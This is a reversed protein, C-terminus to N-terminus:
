VSCITPLTLHTYSVPKAVAVINRKTHSRFTHSFRSPSKPQFGFTLASIHLKPSFRASSQPQFGFTTTNMKNTLQAVADINQKTHSGFIHTFRPPSKPQFGFTMASM